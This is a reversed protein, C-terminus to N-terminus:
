PLDNWIPSACQKCHLVVTAFGEVEDGHVAGVLPALHGRLHRSHELEDRARLVDSSRRIHARAEREGDDPQIRRDAHDAYFWCRRDVVRRVQAHESDDCRLEARVERRNVKTFAITLALLLQRCGVVELLQERPDHAVVQPVRERHDGRDRAIEEPPGGILFLGLGQATCEAIRFM